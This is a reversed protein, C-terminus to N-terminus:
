FPVGTESLHYDAILCEIDSNLIDELLVNMETSADVNFIVVDITDEDDGMLNIFDLREGEQEDVYGIKYNAM